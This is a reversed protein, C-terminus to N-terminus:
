GRPRVGWLFSLLIIGLVICGMLAWLAADWGHRQALYAIGVSQIVRGGVYGFCGVFGAATAQAKKSTLDLAVVGSFMVPVYVFFGIFGFLVLNLTLLSSPTFRSRNILDPFCDELLLRNRCVPKTRHLNEAFQLKTRDRLSVTRFAAPDYLKEQKLVDNLAAALSLNRAESGSTQRSLEAKRADPILSWIQRMASEESELRKILQTSSTLDAPRLLLSGSLILGFFALLLPVM